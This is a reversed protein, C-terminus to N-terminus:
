PRAHHRWSARAQSELAHECSEYCSVVLTKRANKPGLREGGASGKLARCSFDVRAQTGNAHVVSHPISLASYGPRLTM